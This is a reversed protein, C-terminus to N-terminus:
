LKFEFEVEKAKEVGIMSLGDDIVYGLAKLEKLYKKGQKLSFVNGNEMTKIVDMLSEDEERKYLGLLLVRLEINDEFTM